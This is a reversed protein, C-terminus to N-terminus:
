FVLSPEQIRQFGRDPRRLFQRSSTAITLGLLVSGAGIACGHRVFLIFNLLMSAAIGAASAQVIRVPYLRTRGIPLRAIM